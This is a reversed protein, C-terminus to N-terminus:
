LHSIEGQTLRLRYYHINNFILCKISKLFRTNSGRWRWEPGILVLNGTGYLLMINVYYVEM